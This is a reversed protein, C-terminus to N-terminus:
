SDETGPSLNLEVECPKVFHRADREKITNCFRFRLDNFGRM